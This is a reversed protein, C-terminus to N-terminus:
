LFTPIVDLKKKDQDVKDRTLDRLRGQMLRRRVRTTSDTTSDISSAKTSGEAVTSNGLSSKAVYVSPKSATPKQPSALRQPQRIHPRSSSHSSSTPVFTTDLATFKSSPVPADLDDDIDPSDTSSDEDSKSSQGLKLSSKPNPSELAVSLQQKLQAAPKQFGAAARTAVGYPLKSLSAAKRGPSDMLGRLTTEFYALGEGDSSDYPDEVAGPKEGLLRQITNQQAKSRAIGEVKRKTSDPMKGTVPRSISSITEANRAKAMKEQRKYEAAHLHVTFQQAIALFEDEVIRYKDDHDMGERM